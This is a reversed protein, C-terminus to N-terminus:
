QRFITVGSLEAAKRMATDLTALTLRERSALDVYAADYATLGYRMAAATGDRIVTLAASTEEVEISLRSLAVLFAREDVSTIRKRLYAVALGNAIERAW